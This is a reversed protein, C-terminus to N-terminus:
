LCYVISLTFRWFEPFNGELVMVDDWYPTYYGVISLLYSPHGKDGKQNITEFNLIAM